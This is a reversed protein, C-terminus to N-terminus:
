LSLPLTDDDLHLHPLHALPCPVQDCEERSRLVHWQAVSSREAELM